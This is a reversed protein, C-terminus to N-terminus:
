EYKWEKSHDDWTGVKLQWDKKLSVLEDPLRLVKDNVLASAKYLWSELNRVKIPDHSDSEYMSDVYLRVEQIQTFLRNLSDAISVSEDTLLKDMTEFNMNAGEQTRKTMKDDEREFPVLKVGSAFVEDRKSWRIM